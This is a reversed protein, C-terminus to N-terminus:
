KLAIMKGYVTEVDCEAGCECVVDYIDKINEVETELEDAITVIDKGKQVKKIVLRITGQSREIDIGESIGENVGDKYIDDIAKCMDIEEEVSNRIIENFKDKANLLIGLAAMTEKNLHSFYERHEDIYSHLKVKDKRYKLMNLVPQLDSKFKSFNKINQVEVVNTRYNPVFKEILKKDKRNIM